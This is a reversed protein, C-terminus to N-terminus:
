SKEEGIAGILDHVRVSFRNARHRGRHRRGPSPFFLLGGLASFTWSSVRGDRSEIIAKVRDFENPVIEAPNTATSM